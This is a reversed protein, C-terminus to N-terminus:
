LNKRSFCLRKESKWLLYNLPNKIQEPNGLEKGHKVKMHLASGLYFFEVDDYDLM